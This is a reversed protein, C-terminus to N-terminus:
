AHSLEMAQSTYFGNAIRRTRGPAWAALQPEAALLTCFTATGVPEIAPARDSRPFARGIVHMMALLPTRPAFTFLVGREARRALRAIAAVIDHARYHILSDMAVAYDFQGLSPSLMDGVRFEVRGVGVSRPVRSGALEVLQRSLDVAVVDAGRRAVEIAFAGTGCGADLLRQGSLDAPLWDLLTRRMEERGARVTRRIRGLPADSTLKTWAEFATNDFYAEIEGRRELYSVTPM